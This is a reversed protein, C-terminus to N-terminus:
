KEPIKGLRAKLAVNRQGMESAYWAANAMVKQVYDRTERFPITEIYIAGEFAHVAQWARARSPGANYAATALVPNASLKDLVYKLYWTGIHINTEIDNLAINQVLGMKRAAWRATAPMLQMLGSAGASSQAITIFRSEQRILGYVWADDIGLQKAYKQTIPRFPTLYRLAFNHEQQTREASYIAMDYFGAQRAIEAAALLAKDNRGRMAWRWENQAEQRFDPRQYDQAITFLALARQVARDERLAKADEASPSTANPPSSIRNGLEEQALLAYYQHGVSAKAFLVNAENLVGKDKLARARWYQWAPRAALEEPMAQILTNLTDWERERLASRAWWEWQENTLQTTESRKFWVLAQQTNLQKAALLALQGWAFRAQTKLLHSELRELQQAADIRASKGKKLVSYIYAEQEARTTPIKPLKPLKTLLTTLISFASQNDEAVAEALRQAAGVYHGALLLRIRKWLWEQDIINKKYALIILRQCGESLPRSELFGQLHSKTISGSDNQLLSYVDAYCQTEEDRSESALKKWETSFNQWEGRQGLQKLWDRRVRDVTYGEQVTSLFYAVQADDQKELANLTLWYLPYGQLPGPGISEAYQKLAQIDNRKYADRAAILPAMSGPSALTAQNLLTGFFLVSIIVVSLITRKM